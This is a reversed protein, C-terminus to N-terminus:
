GSQFLSEKTLHFIGLFPLYSGHILGSRINLCSNRLVMFLVPNIIRVKAKGTSARRAMPTRRIADPTALGGASTVLIAYTSSSPPKSWNVVWFFM